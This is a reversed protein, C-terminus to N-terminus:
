ASQPAAAGSRGGRHTLPRWPQAAVLFVLLVLVPIVWPFTGGISFGANGPEVRATLETGWPFSSGSVERGTVGSAIVGDAFGFMSFTWAYALAVLVLSAVSAGFSWRPRGEHAEGAAFALAKPSGVALVAARSGEHATADTLNARLEQRLGKRATRPVGRSDMWFDYRAIVWAIRQRDVINM